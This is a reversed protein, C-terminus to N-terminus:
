LAQNTARNVIGRSLKRHTNPLNTPNAAPNAQFCRLTSSGFDRRAACRANPDCLVNPRNGAIAAPNNSTRGRRLKFNHRYVSSWHEPHCDGSAQWGGLAKGVCLRASVHVVAIRLHLESYCRSPSRPTNGPRQRSWSDYSNEPATSRDTQNDTTIRPGPIPVLLGAFIRLFRGCSIQLSNYNSNFRPQIMTISRYGRYPRIQDLINLLQRRFFHLMRQSVLFLRWALPRSRRRIM